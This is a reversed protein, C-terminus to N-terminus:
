FNVADLFFYDVIDSLSLKNFGKVCIM